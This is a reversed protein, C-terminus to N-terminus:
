LTRYVSPAAAHMAYEPLRKRGNESREREVCVVVHGRGLGNTHPGSKERCNRNLHPPFGPSSSSLTPFPFSPHPPPVWEEKRERQMSISEISPRQITCLAIPLPLSFFFFSSSSLFARPDMEMKSHVFSPFFSSLLFRAMCTTGQLCLRWIICPFRFPASFQLATPFFVRLCRRRVQLVSDVIPCCKEECCARYNPPDELGPCEFFERVTEENDDIYESLPCLSADPRSARAIPPVFMAALCLCWCILSLDHLPQLQLQHWRRRGQRGRGRWLRLRWFTMIPSPPVPQTASAEASRFVSWVKKEKEEEGGRGRRTGDTRECQSNSGKGGGRRREAGHPKGAAAATAALTREVGVREEEEEEKGEALVVVVEAKNGRGRWM